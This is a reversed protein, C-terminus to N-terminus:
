HVDQDKQVHRLVKWMPAYCGKTAVDISSSFCQWSSVCIKMYLITKSLYHFMFLDIEEGLFLFIYCNRSFKWPRFVKRWCCRHILGGLRRCQCSALNEAVGIGLFRLFSSLAYLSRRTPPLPVQFNSHKNCCCCCCCLKGSAMDM